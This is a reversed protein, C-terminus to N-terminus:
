PILGHYALAYEFSLYSPGYIAAALLYGPTHPDTEYLGRVVRTLEGTKLMGNIKMAPNRYDKLEEILVLHTKLM